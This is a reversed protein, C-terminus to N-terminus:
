AAITRISKSGGFSPMRHYPFHLLGSLSTFSPDEDFGEDRSGFCCDALVVEQDRLCHWRLACGIPLREDSFSRILGNAWSHELFDIFGHLILRKRHKAVSPKYLNFNLGDKPGEYGSMQFSVVMQRYAASNCFRLFVFYKHLIEVDRRNFPISRKTNEESWVTRDLLDTVVSRADPELKTFSQEAEKFIKQTEVDLFGSNFDEFITGHMHVHSPCFEWLFHPFYPSTSGSM